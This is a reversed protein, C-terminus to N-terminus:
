SIIGVFQTSKKVNNQEFDIGIYKKYLRSLRQNFLTYSYKQIRSYYIKYLRIPSDHLTKLEHSM